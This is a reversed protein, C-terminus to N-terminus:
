SIDLSVSSEDQEEVNVEPIRRNDINRSKQAHYSKIADDVRQKIESAEMKFKVNDNTKQSLYSVEYEHGRYFGFM